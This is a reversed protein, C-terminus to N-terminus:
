TQKEIAARYTFEETGNEWIGYIHTLICYQDNQSVGSHIIPELNMWRKLVSEKKHCIITKLQPLICMFDVKKLTCQLPM